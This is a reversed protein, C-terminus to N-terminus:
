FGLSRLNTRALERIPDTALTNNAVAQLALRTENSKNGTAGLAPILALILQRDMATLGGGERNSDLITENIARISSTLFRAASETSLVKFAAIADLRETLDTSENFSQGLAVYVGPEDPAGYSSIMNIALKRMSALETQYRSVETVEKWGEELAAVAVSSKGEEPATQSDQESQLAQLKIAYNYSPSRIVKLMGETPDDAIVALSARAQNKVRANYWGTSAFYVPLYGEMDKFQELSLIAGVAVNENELQKGRDQPPDENLTTLLRAVHPIYTTMGGRGLAVLADAKVLSDSFAGVARWLSPGAAAYKADGLEKSIFRACANAADMDTARRTLRPREALVRDLAWAFFEGPESLNNAKAENLVGLRDTISGAENYLRTWVKFEDSQAFLAMGVFFVFVLLSLRKM